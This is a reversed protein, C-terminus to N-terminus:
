GRLPLWTKAAGRISKLSLLDRFRAAYLARML